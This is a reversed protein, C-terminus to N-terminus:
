GEPAKKLQIWHVGTGSAYDMSTLPIARIDLDDCIMSPDSFPRLYTKADQCEGRAIIEQTCLSIETKTKAENSEKLKSTPTSSNYPHTPDNRNLNLASPTTPSLLHGTSHVFEIKKRSM